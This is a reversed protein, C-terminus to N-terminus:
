SYLMFLLKFVVSLYDQLIVSSDQKNLVIKMIEAKKDLYDYLQKDDLEKLEHLNDNSVLNSVLYHVVNRPTNKLNQKYFLLMDSIMALPKYEIDIRTRSGYPDNPGKLFNGKSELINKSQGYEIIEISWYLSINNIIYRMQYQFAGAVRINKELLSQIQSSNEIVLDSQDLDLQGQVKDQENLPGFMDDIINKNLDKDSLNTEEALSFNMKNLEPYLEKFLDQIKTQEVQDKSQNQDQGKDSRGVFMINKIQKKINISELLLHGIKLEQKTDQQGLETFTLRYTSKKTQGKDIKKTKYYRIFPVNKYVSEITSKVICRLIQRDNRLEIQGELELVKSRPGNLDKNLYSRKVMKIMGLLNSISKSRIQSQNQNQILDKVKDSHFLFGEIFMLPNQILALKMKFDDSFVERPLSIEKVPNALHYKYARRSYIIELLDYRPSNLVNMISIATKYANPVDKDLRHKKPIFIIKNPDIDRNDHRCELIYVKKTPNRYIKMQDQDLRIYVYKNDYKFQEDTKSRVYAKYLDNADEPINDLIIKAGLRFDITLEDNPKWKYQKNNCFSWTDNLYSDNKPTIIIGDTYIGRGYNEEENSYFLDSLSLDTKDTFQKNLEYNFMNKMYEYYKNGYSMKKLGKKIKVKDEQIKGQVQSNILMDDMSIFPSVLITFNVRGPYNSDSKSWYTLSRGPNKESAEINKYLPSSKYMFMQQLISRRNVTSWRGEEKFGLMGGSSGLVIKDTANEAMQIEKIKKESIEKGKEEEINEKFYKPATPGYLIDFALFIVYPKKKQDKTKKSTLKYRNPKNNKDLGEEILGFFLIEGDLLCKECGNFYIEENNKRTDIAWFELEKERSRVFYIYREKKSDYTFEDSEKIGREKYQKSVDDSILLLFRLGDAKTSVYYEDSITNTFNNFDLQIPKGGLFRPDLDTAGRGMINNYIEKYSTYAVDYKTKDSIQDLKYFTVTDSLDTM